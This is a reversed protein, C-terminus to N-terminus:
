GKKRYHKRYSMYSVIFLLVLFCTLYFVFNPTVPADGNAYSHLGTLYFNVGFYTMMISAFAVVAFVNFTWKGRLGPVLRSHIVFAYVMISILAWTEKPDWGWYRGWSENAWQGGLFNGITLMVLGVTLSMETIITIEKINLDMKPKNKKTTFVMLLLATVGLTWGLTFPGYSAVIVAVHIMLWYSDLVPQLNAISPDLWNLNAVWLLISAVFATSAVTLDSKRGFALGFFVTAWSVYIISEYADSWPAHGSIYWRAVLGLTMLVFLAWICVKFFKISYTIFKRETFVGFIIFSFMFFGFMAFYHYLRNFIDVKNYTIEADIKNESLMVESGYKQQYNIILDLAKDAETYDNTKRAYDLALRYASLIESVFVSDQGKINASALEPRSIWKNNQDGPIPFLKLLGGSLTADLIYSKENLKIFDKEFQNPNTKSTAEQLYPGLKNKMNSDLLDFISAKSAEKPVGLIRKISDNRWDLKMIPVELWLKPIDNMSLFVQNADLEGYTDKGSVKRLIESAFTNIPKMRGNDQVVLRGFRAAHEKNVATAVVVSDVQKLTVRSDHNADQAFSALSFLMVIITTMKSKKDKVKDLMKKLDSFRTNRDFLIAMLGFYLLFYGIYTIWTGWFDHNVSLVTGKEDPDFSAQFFRFGGHDLVNNMFVDYDYFDTDSNNVTLKSRYASYGKDTGPYKDAIFDNLTISFPLKLEKAGYSLFVKLGAIDVQVPDATVFKGGLLEVTQTEGMSTVDVVLVDQNTKEPWAVKVPGYRGKSVPEPIVFQMGGISYLSRLALNQLSDKVFPKQFRKMIEAMDVGQLQTPDVGAARVESMNMYFGDFPADITYANENISINVAGPTPQDLAILINHISVVEGRKIWHDHGQGAGSEVIRLYDEGDESAIFGERVNSIFDKYNITVPQKNYDTKISFNNDLRESLDLKKLPIRRRQAVGDIKYDGDIFTKLYTETSLFTNETAGERIPMLGEYGIYRTVGAGVLILIFSLHLILTAWKKKKYLRFRFINGVFNIVFLVMIAEFWWANYIMERSYPTPSTESARDLFTGIAMAIAFAIFLAATLRTSFLISALKKQM